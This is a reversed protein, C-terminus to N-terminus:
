ALQCRVKRFNLLADEEKRTTSILTRQIETFIAGRNQPVKDIGLTQPGPFKVSITQMWKADFLQGMLSFEGQRLAPELRVCGENLLLPDSLM